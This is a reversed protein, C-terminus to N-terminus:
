LVNNFFFVNYEHMVLNIILSIQMISCLIDTILKIVLKMQQCRDLSHEKVKLRPFFCVHCFVRCFELGKDM